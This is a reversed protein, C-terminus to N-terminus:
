GSCPICCAGGTAALPCGGAIPCGPARGGCGMCCGCNCCCCCCALAGCGKFPPHCLSLSTSSLLFIIAFIHTSNPQLLRACMKHGFNDDTCCRVSDNRRGRKCRAVGEGSSAWRAGPTASCAGGSPWADPPIARGIQGLRAYQVLPLPTDILAAPANKSRVSAQSSHTTSFLRLHDPPWVFTQVSLYYSM